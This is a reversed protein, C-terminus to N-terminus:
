WKAYSKKGEAVLLISDISLQLPVLENRKKTSVKVPANFHKVEGSFTTIKVPIGKKKPELDIWIAPDQYEKKEGVQSFTVSILGLALVLLIIRKM